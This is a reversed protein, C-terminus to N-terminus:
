VNLWARKFIAERELEYFEPSISSEHSVPATGMKPFHERRNGEPPKPHQQPARKASQMSGRGGHRECSWAATSASWRVPSTARRRPASSGASRPSTKRLEPAASRYG